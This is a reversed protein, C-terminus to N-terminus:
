KAINAIAKDLKALDYWDSSPIEVDAPVGADYHVYKDGDKTVLIQSSSLNYISGSGDSYGGVSCAGGGSREGLTKVGMERALTALFTSCSFSFGSQLIYFNYKGKYTDEPGGYTGDHNLDVKYHTERICDMAIDKFRLYPDDTFHAFIYPLTLVAGGGNCTIDLVVNKIDKNKAIRYMSADLGTPVNGEQFAKLPDTSEIEGSDPHNSVISGPAAFADFRIVATSGEMFLGQLSSHDFREEQDKGYAKDRLSIFEKQKDLLGKYRKGITEEVLKDGEISTGGTYISPTLYKTHGDDIHTMLLTALAKDYVATDLSMLGDKLGKSSVFSDFSTIKADDKLGYFREFQLRLLKYSFDAMEKSRKKLGYFGGDKLPIKQVGQSATETAGTAQDKRSAITEVYLADGKKQWAYNVTAGEDVLIQGKDSASTAELLAGKGDSTLSVVRYPHAKDGKMEYVFRYSEGELPTVSTAEADSKAMFRLKSSYFSKVAAPVGGSSVVASYYYDFGNYVLDNGGTRYFLNALLQTPLYCKGDQEIFDFGYEKGDYVEPGHNGIWKSKDSAHVAGDDSLDPSGLDPGVGHNSVLSGSWYEYNTVTLTEKVPDVTLLPRKQDDVVRYGEDVKQVSARLNNAGGNAYFFEYLESYPVDGTKSSRYTPMTICGKEDFGLVSLRSDADYLKIKGEQNGCGALALVSLVLIPSSRLFQKKM